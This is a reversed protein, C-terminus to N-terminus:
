AIFYEVDFYLGVFYDHEEHDHVELTELVFPVDLIDFVYAYRVFCLDIAM